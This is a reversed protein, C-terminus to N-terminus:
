PSAFNPGPFALCALLRGFHPSVSDYCGRRALPLPPGSLSIPFLGQSLLCQGRPWRTADPLGAVDGHVTRSHQHRLQCQGTEGWAACHLGLVRCAPRCCAAHMTFPTYAHSPVRMGVADASIMDAACACPVGGCIASYVACRQLERGLGYGCLATAAQGLRQVDWGDSHAQRPRAGLCGGEAGTHQHGAGVPHGEPLPLGGGQDPTHTSLRIPM